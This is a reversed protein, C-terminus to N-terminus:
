QLFLHRAVNIGSGRVRECEVVLEKAPIRTPLKRPVTSGKCKLRGFALAQDGTVKTVDCGSVQAMARKARGEIIGFRPAYQANIRMAEAENGAVRVDFVSGDIVVRTPVLGRFGPSPMNCAALLGLVFLLSVYRMWVFQPAIILLSSVVFATRRQISLGAM